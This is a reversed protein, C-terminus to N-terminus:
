SCAADPRDFDIRLVIMADAAVCEEGAFQEALEPETGVVLDRVARVVSSLELSKGFADLTVLDVGRRIDRGLPNVFPADTSSRISGPMLLVSTASTADAEDTVIWRLTGWAFLDVEDDCHRVIVNNLHQIPNRMDETDRLRRLIRGMQADNKKVGRMSDLLVRLRNASDVVTWAYMLAGTYQDDSSDQGELGRDTLDALAAVLNRYSLDIMQISYRIGVLFAFQQRDLRLPLSRYPSDKSIM